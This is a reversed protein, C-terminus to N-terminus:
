AARETDRAPIIHLAAAGAPDREELSRLYERAEGESGFGASEAAVPMNTEASVVAYREGRVTVVSESPNGQTRTRKSLLSQSAANGNLFHDFLKGVYHTFRQALRRYNSDLLIQEYRVNRRVVQSSALLAGQASLQLGGHQSEFGPRSLKEADSLEQFQAPAFKELADGAKQFNGTTERLTFRVADQPTQTGVKQITLDLPIARQSIRLTGLPHFVLTAPDPPLPRLTVRAASGADFTTVWNETKEVEAVLLPLVGILALVAELTDGWTRDFEKTVDWCLIHVTGRGRARWPTIGELTFDLEISFVGAGFVKLSVTASVHIIFYFPKFRILADFGITGEVAFASFGFYLEAHAGMQATNSTLAFYTDARIRGWSENLINLSIRKPIPFPLPPPDYQPHFGGVSMLINPEDGFAALVGMEGEMTIFLIRSDYMAAFFFLRKKDFEIAGIFDVQLVLVPDDPDPLLLGLVGLIAINGPIEIVIGLSLTILTPTGWGLKAMPGILFTNLQPPFIARLDSIIKPANAIVDHPFLIESVAGTRVGAALTELKVTRNLGLLGGVGILKFGYGLQIGAGFEATIIVLLSFGKTGDPMRTTILGVAKLDVMDSFKLELAGAYEENDFDFYLYGGGKVPGANVALGVGNPPKFGFSVDLPGANGSRDAKFEFTARVGVEEVVLALPGLKASIGTALTLPFKGDKLTLGITLNDLNIPGLAVHLPLRIVLGSSGKFYLGSRSSFGVGLSFGATIGDAPLIKALFGDADDSKLVILGDRLEGEVFLSLDALKEVGLAISGSGIEFRSGQPVGFSVLPTEAPSVTPEIGVRAGFQIGEALKAPNTTFLQNIFTFSGDTGLRVGLSDTLTSSLKITIQYSDGLPIKLESGFRLGAGVGTCHTTAPDIVPYLLISLAAAPDSTLPFSLSSLPHIETYPTISEGDYAPRTDPPPLQPSLDHGDNFTGLAALDPRVITAFYGLGAGLRYLFYVLQRYRLGQADVLNGTLTNLPDSFYAPIRDWRVTRRLHAAHFDTPTDTIEELEIIGVLLLAAHVVPHRDEFFRVVLYDALKRAITALIDTDTLLGSGAFDNQLAASIAEIARFAELVLGLIELLAEGVKDDDGSASAQELTVILDQLKTLAPSLTNFATVASPPLFGLDALLKSASDPDNVAAIVPFFLDVILDVFIDADELATAM